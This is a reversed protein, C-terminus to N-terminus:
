WRPCCTVCVSVCLFFGWGILYVNKVCEALYVRKCASAMQPFGDTRQFVTRLINKLSYKSFFIMRTLEINQEMKSDELKVASPWHSRVTNGSKHFPLFCFFRIQCGCANASVNVSM